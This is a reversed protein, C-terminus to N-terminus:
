RYFQNLRNSLYSLLFDTNNDLNHQIELVYKNIKERYITIDSLEIIAEM